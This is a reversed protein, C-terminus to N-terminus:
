EKQRVQSANHKYRENLFRRKAVVKADAKSPYPIGTILVARGRHDSFNIGESMQWVQSTNFHLILSSNICDTNKKKFFLLVKGRCVAMVICGKRKDNEIYREFEAVAGKAESSSRSEIVVPKISELQAFLTSSGTGGVANKKWWTTASDMAAYSPYFM